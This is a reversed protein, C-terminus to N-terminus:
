PLSLKRYMRGTSRLTPINSSGTGGYIVNSAGLEERSLFYYQCCYSRDTAAAPVRSLFMRPSVNLQMKICSPCHSHDM